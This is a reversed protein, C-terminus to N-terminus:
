RLDREEAGGCGKKNPVGEEAARRFDDVKVYGKNRLFEAVDGDSGGQSKLAFAGVLDAEAAGSAEDESNMPCSPNVLCFHESWEMTGSQRYCIASPM